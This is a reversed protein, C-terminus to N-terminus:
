LNQVILCLLFLLSNMFFEGIYELLVNSSDDPMVVVVSVVVLYRM